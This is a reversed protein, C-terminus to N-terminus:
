GPKFVNNQFYFLLTEFQDRFLISRHLNLLVWFKETIKIQLPKVKKSKHIKDGRLKRNQATACSKWGGMAMGDSNVEYAILLSCCKIELFIRDLHKERNEFAKDKRLWKSNWMKKSFINLKWKSVIYHIFSKMTTVYIFNGNRWHFLM